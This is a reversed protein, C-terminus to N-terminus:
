AWFIPIWTNFHSASKNDVYQLYFSEDIKEEFKFVVSSEPLFKIDAVFEISKTVRSIYNYVSIKVLM